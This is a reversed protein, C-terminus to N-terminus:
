PILGPYRTDFYAQLEKAERILEADKVSAVIELVIDLKAVIAIGEERSRIGADIDQQIEALLREAHARPPEQEVRADDRIGQMFSEFGPHWKEM